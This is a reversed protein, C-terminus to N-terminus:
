LHLMSQSDFRKILVTCIYQLILITIIIYHLPYFLIYLYLFMCIYSYMFIYTVFLFCIFTYPSTCASTYVYMYIYRMYIRRYRHMIKYISNSQGLPFGPYNSGIKVKKWTDFLISHISCQCQNCMCINMNAITFVQFIKPKCGVFFNLGM